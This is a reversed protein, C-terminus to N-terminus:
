VAEPFLEVLEGRLEILGALEDTQRAILPRAIGAHAAVAVHEKTVLSPRYATRGVDQDFALGGAFRNIGSVFQELGQAAFVATDDGMDASAVGVEFIGMIPADLAADLHM